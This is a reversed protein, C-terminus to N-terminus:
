STGETMPVPAPQTDLTNALEPKGQGIVGMADPDPSRPDRPDGSFDSSKVTVRLDPSKLNLGELDFLLFPMDGVTWPDDYGFFKALAGTALGKVAVIGKTADSHYHDYNLSIVNKGDDFTWVASEYYLGSTGNHEFTIFDAEDLADKSVGLLVALKGPTLQSIVGEAFGSYAGVASSAGYFGSCAGDPAGLADYPNIVNEGGEFRSAWAITLHDQPTGPADGATGTIAANDALPQPESPTERTCGAVAVTGALFM